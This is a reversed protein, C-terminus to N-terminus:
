KALETYKEVLSELQPLTYGNYKVKGTEKLKDRMYVLGSLSKQYMRQVQETKFSQFFPALNSNKMIKTNLQVTYIYIYNKINTSDRINFFTLIKM